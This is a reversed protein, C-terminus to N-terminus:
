PQELTVTDSGVTTGSEPLVYDAYFTIFADLAALDLEPGLSHVLAIRVSAVSLGRSSLVSAELPGLDMLRVTGVGPMTWDHLGIALREALAYAGLEANGARRRLSEGGAYQTIVVLAWSSEVVLAAGNPPQKTSLWALFVGPYHAANRQLLEGLEALGGPLPEYQRGDPDLLVRARTLLADEIAILASPNAM